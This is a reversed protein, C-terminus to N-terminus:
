LQKLNPLHQEYFFALEEDKKKLESEVRKRIDSSDIKKKSGVFKKITKSVKDATKECNEEDYHASACAAYVSGYVKREDFEETHGKTKVICRKCTEGEKM